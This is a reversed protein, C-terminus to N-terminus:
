GLELMRKIKMDLVVPDVLLDSNGPRHIQGPKGACGLFDHYFGYQSCIDGYVETAWCHAHLELVGLPAGRRYVVNTLGAGHAAVVYRANQFLHIQDRITLSDTVVSRFGNAAMVTVVEESNVFYRGSLSRPRNLFLRDDGRTDASPVGFLDLLHNTRPGSKQYTRLFIVTKARIPSREQVIWNRSALQGLELMEKGFGSAAEAGVVIPIDPDLGASDLLELEGLLDVVFHFYNGEFLHRLSVVADYSPSLLDSKSRAVVYHHPSPVGHAFPRLALPHNFSLSEELLHGSSTIVYGWNPEIISPEKVRRV